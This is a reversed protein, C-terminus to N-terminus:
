RGTSSFLTNVMNSYSGDPMEQVPLVQTQKASRYVEYKRSLHPITNTVAVLTISLLGAIILKNIVTKM